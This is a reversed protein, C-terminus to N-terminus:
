DLDAEPRQTGTQEVTEYEAVTSLHLKIGGVSGALLNYVFAGVAGSIFGGIAAVLIIGIFMGLGFRFGLTSGFILLPVAYLLSMVTMVAAYMKAVSVVGSRDPKQIPM